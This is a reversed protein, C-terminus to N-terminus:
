WKQYHWSDDRGYRRSLLVVPQYCVIRGHLVLDPVGFM